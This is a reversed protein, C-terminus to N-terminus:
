TTCAIGNSANKQCPLWQCQSQAMMAIAMQLCIPRRLQAPSSPRATVLLPSSLLPPVSWLPLPVSLTTMSQGNRAGSQAILHRRKVMLSQRSPTSRDVPSLASFSAAFTLNSIEDNSYKALKMANPISLHPVKKFVGLLKKLKAQDVLRVMTINSIIYTRPIPIIHVHPSSILHDSMGISRNQEIKSNSTAPSHAMNVHCTFAAHPHSILSVLLLQSIENFV